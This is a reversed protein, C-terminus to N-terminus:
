KDLVNSSTMLNSIYEQLYANEKELQECMNRQELTQNWLLDLTDRLLRTEKYLNAQNVTEQTDASDNYVQPSSEDVQSLRSNGESVAVENNGATKAISSNHIAMISDDSVKAKDEGM